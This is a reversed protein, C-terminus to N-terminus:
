CLEDKASFIYDWEHPLFELLMISQFNKSKYVSALELIKRSTLSHFSGDRRIKYGVRKLDDSERPFDALVASIKKFYDKGITMKFILSFIPTLLFMVVASFSKKASEGPLLFLIVKSASHVFWSVLGIFFMIKTRKKAMRKKVQVLLEFCIARLEEETSSDILTKDLVLTVKSRNEFVFARGLSGNYFFLRPAKIGLKYAEQSSAEFLPKADGSRLERAGLFFLVALDSYGWSIALIVALAVLSIFFLAGSLTIWSFIAWLAIVLLYFFFVRM